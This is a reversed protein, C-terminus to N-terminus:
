VFESFLTQFIWKEFSVGEIYMSDMHQNDSKCSIPDGVFQYLTTISSCAVMLTFTVRYHLGFVGNAIPSDKSLQSFLQGFFGLMKATQFSFIKGCAQFLIM